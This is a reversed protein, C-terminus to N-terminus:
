GLAIIPIGNESLAAGHIFDMTNYVNSAELSAFGPNDNIFDYLEKIV